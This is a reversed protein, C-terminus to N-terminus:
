RSDLTEIALEAQQIHRQVKEFIKALFIESAGQAIIDRRGQIYVSLSPSVERLQKEFVIFTETAEGSKSFFPPLHPFCHLYTQGDLVIRETSFRLLWVTALVYLCFNALVVFVTGIITQILPGFGSVVVSKVYHYSVFVVLITWLLTIVALFWTASNDMPTRRNDWELILRTGEVQDVNFHMVMHEHATSM